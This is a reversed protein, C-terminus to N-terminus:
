KERWFIHGVITKVPSCFDDVRNASEGTHSDVVIQLCFREEAVARQEVVVVMEVM